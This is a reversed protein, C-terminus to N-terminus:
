KKKATDLQEWMNGGAAKVRDMVETIKRELELTPKFEM